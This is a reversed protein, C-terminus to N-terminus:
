NNTLKKEEVSFFSIAAVCQRPVYPTHDTDMVMKTGLM